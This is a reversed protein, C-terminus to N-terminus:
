AAINDNTVGKSTKYKNRKQWHLHLCAKFDQEDNPDNFPILEYNGNPKLLLGYRKTRKRLIDKPIGAEKANERLLIDYGSLQAGTSAYMAYTCKYDILHLYGDNLYPKVGPEDPAGHFKWLKSFYRTDKTGPLPEFDEIIRFKRYGELYPLIEPFNEKAHDEDFTCNDILATAHHVRTGLIRKYELTDHPVCSFDTLKFENLLQTVSPWITGDVKGIHTVPDFETKM